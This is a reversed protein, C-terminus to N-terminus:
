NFPNDEEPMGPWYGRQPWHMISSMKLKFSDPEQPVAIISRVLGKAKAVEFKRKFSPQGPTDGTELAFRNEHLQALADKWESVHAKAEIFAFEEGRTAVVDLYRTGSSCSVRLEEGKRGGQCKWGKSAGEEKVVQNVFVREPQRRPQSRPPGALDAPDLTESSDSDVNTSETDLDQFGDKFIDTRVLRNDAGYVHFPGQMAGNAWAGVWTEGNPRHLVGDGNAKGLGVTDGVVFKCQLIGSAYDYAVGAGCRNGNVMEGVYQVEKTQQNFVTGKGTLVPLVGNFQMSGKYCMTPSIEVQACEVHRHPMEVVQEWNSIQESFRVPGSYFTSTDVTGGFRVNGNVPCHDVRRTDFHYPAKPRVLKPPPEAPPKAPPTPPPKAPADGPAKRTLQVRKAKPTSSAPKPASSAPEQDADDM